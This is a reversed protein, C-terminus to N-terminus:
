DEIFNTPSNHYTHRHTLYFKQSEKICDKLLKIEKIINKIGSRLVKKNIVFSRSIQILNKFSLKGHRGNNIHLRYAMGRANKKRTVWYGATRLECGGTVNEDHFIKLSQVFWLVMNMKQMRLFLEMDESAKAFEFLYNDFGGTQQFYSREFFVAASLADTVSFILTQEPYYKIMKRKVSLFATAEGEHTYVLPIFSKILSYNKFIDIGKRCFVPTPILDDDLFLIYPATSRKFGTNRASSVNPVEQIIHIIKGLKLILKNDFFGPENQDVVIIEIEIDEQKQLCDLIQDLSDTRKYTPIIVSLEPM